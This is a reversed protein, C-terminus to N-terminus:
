HHAPEEDALESEDFRPNHDTSTTSSTAALFHTDYWDEVPAAGAEAQGEVEVEQTEYASLQSAIDAEEPSAPAQPLAFKQVHGESDSAKVAPAKYSKLERLYLDQVLDAQRVATPTVFTRRFTTASQQKALRVLSQRSARLSQGLM